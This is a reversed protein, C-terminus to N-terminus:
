FAMATRRARYDKYVIIGEPRAASNLEREIASAAPISESKPKSVPPADAAHLAGPIWTAVLVVTLTTRMAHKCGEQQEGSETEQDRCNKRRSAEFKGIWNWSHRSIDVFSVLDKVTRGPNRISRPWCAIFPMHTSIEYSNGKSRPFPMGNDSTVIVLTNDFEGAAKLEGVLVGVQKDFKEVALAYDLMDRRM